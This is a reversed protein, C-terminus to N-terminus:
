MAGIDNYIATYIDVRAYNHGSVMNKKQLTAKLDHEFFIRLALELFDNQHLQSCTGHKNWEYTWFSINNGDKLAPWNTELQTKLNKRIKNEDFKASPCFQPQPNSNNSPWLGHITFKSSIQVACPNKTNGCFTPPWTEALKWFEFSGGILTPFVFFLLLCTFKM